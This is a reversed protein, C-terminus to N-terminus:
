IAGSTFAGYRFREQHLNGMAFNSRIKYWFVYFGVQPPEAAEPDPRVHRLYYDGMVRRFRGKVPCNDLDHPSAGPVGKKV